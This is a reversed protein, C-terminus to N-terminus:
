FGHIQLSASSKLQMILPKYRKGAGSTSRGTRPNIWGRVEITIGRLALWDKQKYPEGNALTFDRWYRRPIQVALNGDLELWVSKNITVAAVKARVLRFGKDKVGLGTAGKAAWFDSRWLGLRSQRAKREVALLCAAQDTNPPVAIQLAMGQALLNVALSRGQLDYVHALSRGYADLAQAEATLRVKKNARAIFAVVAARSEVGFPQGANAGHTVEPANVGLLRVSRGDQLRLTDGDIVKKVVVVAGEGRGCEAALLASGFLLWLFVGCGFAHSTKKHLALYSLM